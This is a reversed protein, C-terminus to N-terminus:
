HKNFLYRTIFIGSGDDKGANSEVGTTVHDLEWGQNSLEMIKQTIMKDNDRVNGFNIGVGSYFNSLKVEQMFGKDDITIMRSRGIGMPVLSEITTVQMYKVNNQPTAVGSGKFAILGGAFLIAIALIFVNLNIKKAFM